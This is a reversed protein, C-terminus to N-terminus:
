RVAILEVDFILTANPPIVGGAGRAGYGMAPPIILTRKGGEKMGAVGVDWGRIVRGGGLPFTFPEKREVSSDFPKGGKGDKAKPDYLWGTYHVTVNGATATKGDGVKPEIITLDTVETPLTDTMKIFKTPNSPPPTNAAPTAPASASANATAAPASSNGAAPAADGVELLEVDFILTSDPPILGGGRGGYALRPPIILTRKGKEKMGAVGQEWGRIVRGGGLQFSFPRGRDLSSDFKKGKGDKAAPDYLWGTYNVTVKGPVAEKGSGIAREIITLEGVEVPLADTDKIFKPPAIPLAPPPAAPPTGGSVIQILDVDFILTSNAPINPREKDGYALDPPIILTRKAREAMGTLGLDWGKIVRGGGIIFGYPVPRGASSDFQAGKGDPKSSDYIWGTYHVLIAGGEKSRGNDPNGANREIVTLQTVKAPLKDTPKLQVVQPVSAKADAAKDPQADSPISASAVCLAYFAVAFKKM